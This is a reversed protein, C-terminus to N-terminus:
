VFFQIKDDSIDVLLNDIVDQLDEFGQCGSESLFNYKIM